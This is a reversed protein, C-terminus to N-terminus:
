LRKPGYISYRRVVDFRVPNGDFADRLNVVDAVCWDLDQDLASNQFAEEMDVVAEVNWGGIDQNFSSADQFMEVMSTVGSTDWPGIDDNFGSADEFLESMDTVGSTDWTSIHGYTAEAAAADSLWAAVATRISTDDM